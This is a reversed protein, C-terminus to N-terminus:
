RRGSAANDTGRARAPPAGAAENQGAEGLARCREWQANLEVGEVAGQELLRDVCNLENQVSPALGELEAQEAATPRADAAAPSRRSEVEDRPLPPIGPRLHEYALVGVAVLAVLTLVTLIWRVHSPM